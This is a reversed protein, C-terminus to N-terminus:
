GPVLGTTASIAQRLTTPSLDDKNLFAAGFQELEARVDQRPLSTLVVVPTQVRNARLARLVDGGTLRPMRWDLLILTYAQRAAKALAEEGSAVSDLAIQLEFPWAKRLYRAAIERDTDCDDVLLVRFQEAAPSGVTKPQTMDGM